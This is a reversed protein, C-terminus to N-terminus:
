LPTTEQTPCRNHRMQEIKMELVGHLIGVYFGFLGDTIGHDERQGYAEVERILANLQQNTTTEKIRRKIDETEAKITQAKTELKARVDTKAENMIKIGRFAMSVMVAVFALFLLLKM